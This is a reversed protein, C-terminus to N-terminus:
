GRLRALIYLNEYGTLNGYFGPTEIISGIKNYIATENDKYDKGFLRVTGDTPFTLKL